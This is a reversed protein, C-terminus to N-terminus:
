NIKFPLNKTISVKIQFGDRTKTKVDVQFPIDRKEFKQGEKYSVADLAETTGHRPLFNVRPVLRIARKGAVLPNEITYIILRDGESNLKGTATGNFQERSVVDQGIEIVWLKTKKTPDQLIIMSTGETASLKKLDITYEGKQHLFQINEQNFWGYRYRHWGMFGTAYVVDGMLDYCGVEHTYPSSAPYLEGSGFCHGIEHMLTTYHENYVQPMLTIMRRINRHSAGHAGSGVSKFGAAGKNPVVVLITNAPFNAGAGLLQQGDRTYDDWKWNQADTTTPFYHTMPHPMRKWSKNLNFNVTAGQRAFSNIMESNSTIERWLQEFNTSSCPADSWDAFVVELNVTKGADIESNSRPGEPGGGILKLYDVEQVKVYGIVVDGDAGVEGRFRVTHTTATAKFTIQGYASASEPQDNVMWDTYNANTTLRKIEKGDIDVSFINRAGSVGHIPGHDGGRWGVIVEYYTGPILNSLTQKIAPDGARNSHNLWVTGADGNCTVDCTEIQWNENCLNENFGPNRLLNNTTLDSPDAGNQGYSYIGALSLVILTIITKM